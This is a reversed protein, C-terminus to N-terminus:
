FCGFATVNDSPQIFIPFHSFQLEFGNVVLRTKGTKNQIAWLSPSNWFVTSQEDPLMNWKEEQQHGYILIDINYHYHDLFSTCLTCHGFSRGADASLQFHQIFDHPSIVAHWLWWVVTQHAATFITHFWYNWMHFPVLPQQWGTLASSSQWWTTTESWRKHCLVLFCWSHFIFDIPLSSTPEMQFTSCERFFAAHSLKNTLALCSEM